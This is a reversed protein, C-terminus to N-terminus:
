KGEYISKLNVNKKLTKNLNTKSITYNKFYYTKNDM